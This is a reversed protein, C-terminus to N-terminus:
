RMFSMIIQLLFWMEHYGDFHELTVLYSLNLYWRVRSILSYISCWTEHYEYIRTIYHASVDRQMIDIMVCWPTEGHNDWLSCSSRFIYWTEHYGDFHELSVVIMVYMFIDHWMIDMMIPFMTFDDGWLTQYLHVNDSHDDGWHVTCLFIAWLDYLWM